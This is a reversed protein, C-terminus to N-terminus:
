PKENRRFEKLRCSTSLGFAFCKLADEEEEFEFDEHWGNYFVKFNDYGIELSVTFGNEKIPLVSIWNETEEFEIKPYEALKEKIREILSM